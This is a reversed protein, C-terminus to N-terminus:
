TRVLISALAYEARLSSVVLYYKCGKVDLGLTREGLGQVSGHDVWAGAAVKALAGAALAGYNDRLASECIARYTLGEGREIIVNLQATESDIPGLVQWGEPALLLRDNVLWSSEGAFPHPPTKGPALQGLTADAQEASMDYTFTAGTRLQSFFAQELGEKFRRGARRAPSVGPVVSLFAGWANAGTTHLQPPSDVRVSPDASPQFWLTLHGDELNQRLRGTLALSLEFPVQQSVRISSGTEDVWYWGPGQLTVELEDGRQHAACRRVWWRGASPVPQPEVENWPLRTTAPLGLFREALSSCILSGDVAAALPM